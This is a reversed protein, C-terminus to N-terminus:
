RGRLLRETEAAAHEARESLALFEERVTKVYGADTLAGLNADITLRAGEIAARLLTVAVAIDGVTSRRARAALETAEYLASACLRMISLPVDTAGRLAIQIAASRLGREAETDKPARQAAIVCMYAAADADMADVLREEIRTLSQPDINALAAGMRLLSTGLAAAAACASGGGPTPSASGFAALVDRFSRDAFTPAV